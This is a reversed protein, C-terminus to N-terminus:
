PAEALAERVSRHFHDLAQEFRGYVVRDALGSEFNRQITEGVTFDEDLVGVILDMTKAWQPDKATGPPVLISVAMQAEGPRDPDPFVRYAEAHDSQMIFVTNPFLNMLITSHPVLTWSEEPQERLTEITRRIGAFRHSRGFAQFLGLNRPFLPGVTRRHLIKIHYAEWFTDSMLKWNMRRRVMRTDLLEYTPIGYRDLDEGLGGLISSVDVPEGPTPRVWVLGHKEAVPLEILHHRERDVGTFGYDDPITEVRGDLEYSWAHYRCTFGNAGRGCGWALKSGRHRCINAFARLSGDKQRVVVVPTPPLDDTVFDGPERVQSSFGVVVPHRRFLVERERAAREPDFYVRPDNFAIAEGLPAQGRDIAAFAERILRVQTAHDM